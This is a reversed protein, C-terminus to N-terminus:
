TITSLDVRYILNNYEYRPVVSACGAKSGNLGFLCTSWSNGPQGAGGNSWMATYTCALHVVRGGDLDMHPLHAGNYCSSGTQQHSAVMTANVWPGEIQDAFAMFVANSTGVFLYKRTWSNWNVTGGGMDVMVGDRRMARQHPAVTLNVENSAVPLWVLDASLVEYASYNVIDNPTSKVRAHVGSNAFYTYQLKSDKESLLIM